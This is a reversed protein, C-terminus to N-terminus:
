QVKIKIPKSEIQLGYGTTPYTETLFFAAAHVKLNKSSTIKHEFTKEIVVGSEILIKPLPEFGVSPFVWEFNMESAFAAYLIDEKSQKNGTVIWDPLEAEIDRGGLNKFVVTATVTDGVKANTKDVTVTLSFDGVIYEEGNFDCALFLCLGIACLATLFLKKKM